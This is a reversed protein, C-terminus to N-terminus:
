VRGIHRNFWADHSDKYATLKGGTVLFLGREGVERKTSDDRHRMYEASRRLVNLDVGAFFAQNRAEYLEGARKFYEPTVAYRDKIDNLLGQTVRWESRGSIVNHVDAMVPGIWKTPDEYPSASRSKNKDGGAEIYGDLQAESTLTYQAQGKDDRETILLHSLNGFLRGTREDQSLADVGARLGDTRTFDMTSTLYGDSDRTGVKDMLSLIHDPTMAGIESNKSTIDGHRVLAGIFRDVIVKGQAEPPLKAIETDTLLGNVIENMPPTHENKAEKQEVSPTNDRDIM